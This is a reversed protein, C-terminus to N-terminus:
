RMRNEVNVLEDFETRCLWENQGSTVLGSQAWWQQARKRVISRGEVIEHPCTIPVDSCSKWWELAHVMGLQSAELLCRRSIRHLLDFCGRSKLYMFMATSEVPVDKCADVLELLVRETDKTACELLHAHIPNDLLGCNGPTEAVVTSMNARWWVLSPWPDLLLWACIFDSASVRVQGQNLLWDLVDIRGCISANHILRAFDIPQGYFTSPESLAPAILYPEGCGLDFCAKLQGSKHMWWEIIDSRGSSFAAHLHSSPRPNGLSLVDM